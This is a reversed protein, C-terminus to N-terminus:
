KVYHGLHLRHMERVIFNHMPILVEKPAHTLIVEVYDRIKQEIDPMIITSSAPM